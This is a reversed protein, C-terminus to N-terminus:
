KTSEGVREKGKEKPIPGAIPQKTDLSGVRTASLEKGKEKRERGKGLSGKGKKQTLAFGQQIDKSGARTANEMSYQAEQNTELGREERLKGERVKEGNAKGGHIREGGKARVKEKAGSQM